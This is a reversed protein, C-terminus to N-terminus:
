QWSIRIHLTWVSPKRFLHHRINPLTNFICQSVKICDCVRYVSYHAVTFNFIEKRQYTSLSLLVSSLCCTFRMFNSTSSAGIICHSPQENPRMFISEVLIHFTCDFAFINLGLLLVMIFFIKWRENSAMFWNKCFSKIYEIWGTKRALQLSRMCKQM